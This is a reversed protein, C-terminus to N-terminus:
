FLVLGIVGMVDASSSRLMIWRTTRVSVQTTVPVCNMETSCKSVALQKGNPSSRSNAHM